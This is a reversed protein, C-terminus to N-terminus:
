LAAKWSAVRELDREDYVALAEAPSISAMEAIDVGKGIATLRMTYWATIAGPGPEEFRPWEPGAGTPDTWAIPLAPDLVMSRALGVLDASESSVADAAQQRTKFGGTAMVAATTRQRAQRAFDLYYPGSGVRDSSAPAGPFYTGGSVDLVDILGDLRDVVVLAEDSTLGGELEDTANVKVAIGFEAGTATRVADVVDRVIQSRGEISGGYRDSRRNFLPTLFQSLLFGHAAHVQVGGFGLQQARRAAAAYHAPLSEVDAIDMEACELGDLDLASPGVPHTVADFALAGAHGLQPWLQAGNSSGAAALDRFRDDDSRDDLVLNGPKEPYRSDVQVEGIMSLAVGGDSWRRYLEIQEPTPMGAGDGLSDSMPAKVLRNKLEIGCPLQVAAALADAAHQGDSTM